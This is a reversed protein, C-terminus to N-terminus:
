GVFEELWFTQPGGVEDNQCCKAVISDRLPQYCRTEALSLFNPYFEIGM